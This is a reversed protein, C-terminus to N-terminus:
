RARRYPGLPRCPPIATGVVRLAIRSWVAVALFAAVLTAPLFFFAVAFLGPAVWLGTSRLSPVGAFFRDVAAFRELAFVLAFGVTMTTLMIGLDSDPSSLWSLSGVIVTLGAFGSFMTAEANV